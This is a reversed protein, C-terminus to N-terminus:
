CFGEVGARFRMTSYKGLAHRLELFSPTLHKKLVYGQGEVYSGPLEEVMVFYPIRLKDLFVEYREGDDSFYEVWVDTEGGCFDIRDQYTKGIITADDEVDDVASELLESPSLAGIPSRMSSFRNIRKGQWEEGAVWAPLEIQHQKDKHLYGSKKFYGLFDRFHNRSKFFTEHIRGYPWCQHIVDQGIQGARGAHSVEILLHWHPSGDEHWELNSTWDTVVVGSRGLNQIFRGIPKNAKAWKYASEGEGAIKRDLTLTVFRVRKWDMSSMRAAQKPSHYRKYCKPCWISRCSHKRLIVRGGDYQKLSPPLESIKAQPKLHSDKVLISALPRARDFSELVVASRVVEGTTLDILDNEFRGFM